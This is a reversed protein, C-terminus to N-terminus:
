GGYSIAGLGDTQRYQLAEAIHASQIWEEGALDAVTRAVRLLRTYARATLGYREFASKILRTGKDDLACFRELEKGYLRANCTSGGNLRERQRRRAENVRERVGASSEAASEKAALEDFSVPPVEVCMDMRDLLPGSIRGLYAAVSEASCTCRGSKHGYWGCRCPNMACVLMFGAPYSLTGNVRSITVSGDEIPQRLSELADRHFETIEDLFLVGNHALSMEGPRPVRGGGVLGAPSVTHHPSRFPRATLMPEERGILGVVSHIGTAEIAEERSMQPLITPIRRALMSKGAGPPGILLINHGGAAAIELARKVNDQGRVDSFDPGSPEKEKVTYVPAPAIPMTGDLHFLVERAHAVPYVTLGDVLSAERANEAPVYLERAGASKAALAMPLVGVVPRVFGELSLEGIFAADAPPSEVHGCAALLGLFIPLDYVPGEKRTDAPALNTVIRRMPFEYGCNKCAARVRERSEKVAADPLGVVEFGPLGASLFCEVFVDYGALGALGVSRVKSVM